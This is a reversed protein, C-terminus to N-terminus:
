DVKDVRQKKAKLKEEALQEARQQKSKLKQEDTKKFNPMEIEGDDEPVDCYILCCVFMAFPSMCLLVLMFYRVLPPVVSM